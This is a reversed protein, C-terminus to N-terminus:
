AAARVPDGDPCGAHQGRGRLGRNRKGEAVKNLLFSLRLDRQAQAEADAQLKVQMEAIRERPVGYQLMQVMNRQLTRATYRKVLGEPLEMDGVLDVLKTRLQERMAQQSEQGARAEMQKGVYEKLEALNDFGMATAMEDNIEPVVRKSVEHVTLTITVDKGRWDENPHTDAVTAKLEVVDGPKKGALDTALELM